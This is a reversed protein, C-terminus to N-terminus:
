DGKKRYDMSKARLPRVGYPRPGHCGEVNGNTVAHCVLCCPSFTHVALEEGAYWPFLM